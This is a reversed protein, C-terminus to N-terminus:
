LSIQTARQDKITKRYREAQAQDWELKCELPPVPGGGIAVIRNLEAPQWISLSPGDSSVPSLDAAQSASTRKTKRFIGSSATFSASILPTNEVPM